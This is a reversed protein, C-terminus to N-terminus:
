ALRERVVADVHIDRKALEQFFPMTPVCQEPHLVGRQPIEGRAIMQAIISPPVGTDFAGASARWGKHPFILSEMTHTVPRGNREGKVVIRLCDCDNPMAGDAPPPAGLLRILLDRPKVPIGRVDVPQDDALGLDVLLKVSKVFSEPLALSFTARRIGKDKFSIPFSAVESHITYHAVAPGVPAPFLVPEGGSLPGVESFRGEDFIPAPMVCEDLVTEFSYPTAFEDAAQSLDVAGIQIDMSEVRDLQDAAHRAMVNIIGPTSGCGLVALVGAKEFEDHLEVQKRTMHFLGGLDLYHIGAKLCARMVELNFYYQTSNIVVDCGRIIEATGEIDRADMAAAEVREDGVMELLATAADLNLDGILVREVDPSELLDRLTVRGM